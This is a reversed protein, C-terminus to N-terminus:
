ASRKMSLKQEDQSKQIEEKPINDQKQQQVQSNQIAIQSYYKYMFYEGVVVTIALASISAIIIYLNQKEM